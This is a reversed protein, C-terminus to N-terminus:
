KLANLVRDVLDRGIADAFDSYISQAISVIRDMEKPEIHNVQMLESLKDLYEANEASTSLRNYVVGADVANQLIIKLDSPLNQYFNNNITISWADYFTNTVSLYKQVEYFNNFYINTTSNEQADVVRQQMAAYLESFSISAPNAGLKKFAAQHASARARIKIGNFDEAKTLPRVNNTIQRFGIEPYGLIKFGQKEAKASLEVGIEGDLLSYAQQEDKFLYPFTLIGMEPVFSSLDSPTCVTMEINGLGVAELMERPGGLQNSPYLEVKLRGNSEKEVQNKIMTSMIGVPNDLAEPLGVKITYTKESKSGTEASGAAFVSTVLCIAILLVICTKKM